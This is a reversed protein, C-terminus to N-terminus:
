IFCPNVKIRLALLADSYMARMTLSLQLQSAQIPSFIPFVDEALTISLMRNTEVAEIERRYKAERENPQV